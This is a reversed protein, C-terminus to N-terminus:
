QSVRLERELEIMENVVKQVAVNLEDCYDSADVNELTILRGNREREIRGLPVYRAVAQIDVLGTITTPAQVWVAVHQTFVEPPFYRYPWESSYKYANAEWDPRIKGREAWADFMNVRKLDITVHWKDEPPVVAGRDCVNENLEPAPEPIVTQSQSGKNDACGVSLIMGLVIAMGIVARAVKAKM